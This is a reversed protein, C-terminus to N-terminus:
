LSTSPLVTNVWLRLFCNWKPPASRCQSAAIQVAHIFNIFDGPHFIPPGQGERGGGGYRIIYETSCAPKVNQLHRGTHAYM